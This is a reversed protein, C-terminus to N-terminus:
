ESEFSVQRQGCRLQLRMRPRNAEQTKVPLNFAAVLRSVDSANPDDLEFTQLSCGGPSSVAPHITSPSWRIFFPATALNPKEIRLTVWELKEGRPTIRSGPQPEGTVFGLKQIQESASKIDPVHVAWGVLTPTKLARLSKELDNLNEADSRTAIIELYVDSGLSVLANETGRSPHRGGRVPVVGTANQFAQIGDDLNAVGLMIHDIGATKEPIHGTTTSCAVLAVLLISVHRVM